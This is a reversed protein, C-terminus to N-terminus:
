SALLVGRYTINENKLGLFTRKLVHDIIKNEINKNMKKSPYFCGMGGTNPGSDGDFLEKIILHM